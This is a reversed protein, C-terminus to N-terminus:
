YLWVWPDCLLLPLGGTLLSGPITDLYSSELWAGGRGWQSQRGPQRVSSAQCLVAWRGVGRKWSAGRGMWDEVKELSIGLQAWVSEQGELHWLGSHFGFSGKLPIWSILGLWRYSVCLLKFLCSPWCYGGTTTHKILFPTWIFSLILILSPILLLAAILLSPILVLSPNLWDWFLPGSSIDDGWTVLAALLQVSFGSVKFYRRHSWLGPKQSMALWVSVSDQM